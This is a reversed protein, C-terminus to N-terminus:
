AISVSLPGDNLLPLNARKMVPFPILYTFNAGYWRDEFPWASLTTCVRLSPILRVCPPDIWSRNDELNKPDRRVCGCTYCLRTVLSEGKRLLKLERTLLPLAQYIKIVHQIHKSTTLVKRDFDGVRAYKRLGICRTRTYSLGRRM